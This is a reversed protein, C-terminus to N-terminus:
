KAIASVQFFGICFGNQRNGDAIDKLMLATATQTEDGTLVINKKFYGHNREHTINVTNSAHSIADIVLKCFGAETLFM